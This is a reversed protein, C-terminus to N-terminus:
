GHPIAVKEMQQMKEFIEFLMANQLGTKDGYKEVLWEALERLNGYVPEDQASQAAKHRDYCENFIELETKEM